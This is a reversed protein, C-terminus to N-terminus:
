KTTKGFVRGKRKGSQKDYLVPRWTKSDANLSSKATIRLVRDNLRMSHGGGTVGLNTKAVFPATVMNQALLERYLIMGNYDRKLRALNSTYIENAQKIGQQWGKQIYDNWLQREWYTRPLLSVDPMQPKKFSMWLYNRWTPAATVFRPQRQIEYVRDAARIVDEGNIKLTRRGEVLVPPLVNNELLLDNFNFVRDLQKTSHSLLVNIQKARYALGAQAGISVATEELAKSRVRNIDFAKPQKFAPIEVSQTAKSCASLSLAMACFASFLKLYQKM